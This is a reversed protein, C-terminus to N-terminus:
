LGHAIMHCQKRAGVNLQKSMIDAHLPRISLRVSLYVSVYRRALM